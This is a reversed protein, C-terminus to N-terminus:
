QDEWVWRRDQVIVLVQILADLMPM